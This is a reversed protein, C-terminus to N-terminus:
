EEGGAGEDDASALKLLTAHYRRLREFHAEMARGVQPSNKVTLFHGVIASYHEAQRPLRLAPDRKEAIEVDAM